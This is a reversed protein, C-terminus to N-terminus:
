KKDCEMLVPFSLFSIMSSVSKSEGGLQSRSHLASRCFWRLCLADNDRQFRHRINNEVENSVWRRVLRKLKGCVIWCCIWESGKTHGVKGGEDHGAGFHGVQGVVVGGFGMGNGGVVEVAGVVMVGGVVVVGDVGGVVVVGDIWVNAVDVNAANVVAVLVM